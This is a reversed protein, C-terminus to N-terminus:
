SKNYQLPSTSANFFLPDPSFLHALFRLVGDNPDNVPLPAHFLVFQYAGKCNIIRKFLEHGIKFLEFLGMVRLASIKDNNDYCHIQFNKEDGCKLAPSESM